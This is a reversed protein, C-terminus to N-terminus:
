KGKKIAESQSMMPEIDDFLIPISAKFQAL